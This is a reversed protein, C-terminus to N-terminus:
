QILMMKKTAAYSGARLRYFYVGGAWKRGSVDLRVSHTGETLAEDLVTTMVEGLLSYVELTVHAASPITFRLTTSPNFPNPFNEALSFGDPTGGGIPPVAAATQRMAAAAADLLPQGGSTLDQSLEWIMVGGLGKARAYACKAAISATDEYTIVFSKAANTLYPVKSVADWVYTWGGGQLTMAADTYTLDSVGSQPLYMGAAAFRKGYFALGLLLKSGPIGRTTQLYQISQDVSYDNADSPPAYLPANHGAHATWSGHYDYTMANFWDVVTTLASFNYGTGWYPSVPIAMTLLLATDAAGLGARLEKMLLTLSDRKAANLPGAPEYDIDVGDYRNATIFAVTNQVFLARLRPDAIVVDFGANNGGGGFSLLIKKGGAHVAGILAPDPINSPVSITGNANPSAFAHIVHTLDKLHLALPPMVSSKWSPLYGAVRYHPQAPLVGAAASVVICYFVVTYVSKMM